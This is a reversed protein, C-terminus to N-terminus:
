GSHNKDFRSRMIRIRLLVLLILGVLIWSGFTIWWYQSPVLFSFIGLVGYCWFSTAFLLSIRASLPEGKYQLNLRRAIQLNIFYSFPIGVVIFFIILFLIDV